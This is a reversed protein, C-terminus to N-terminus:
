KECILLKRDIIFMKQKLKIETGESWLANM